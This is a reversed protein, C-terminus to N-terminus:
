FNYDYHRQPKFDVIYREGNHTWEDQNKRKRIRITEAEPKSTYTYEQTNNNVCHGSFGGVIIEPKWDESLESSMPRIELTKDSIVRVIEFPYIDSYGFKNAFKGLEPITKLGRIEERVNSMADVLRVNEKHMEDTYETKNADAILADHEATITELKSALQEAKVKTNIEKKSEKLEVKELANLIDNSLEKRMDSKAIVNILEHLENRTLEIKETGIEITATKM